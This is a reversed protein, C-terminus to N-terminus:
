KVMKKLIKINKKDLEKSPTELILNINKLRPENILARFGSLGIKGRGIDAHRDHHSGLDTKSDNVHILKLRNLGIIKDFEQFTQNVSKQDRIDYGSEFAHATDFCVGLRGAVSSGGTENASASRASKHSEVGKIIEAIEEFSDGIIQGAGASMEILFQCSGSYNKLIKKIGGIVKKLAQKQGLDKASGLHTMLYKVGLQSGRELEEALVSISGHYIKNDSSALNIYYPAHIYCEQQNYKKLNDKFEKIIQPTLEPAPGGRPSRSFFQFVDGDVARSNKPANIVGGGASVHTGIFM